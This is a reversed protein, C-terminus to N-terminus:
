RLILIRGAISTIRTGSLRALEAMAADPDDLRLGGSIRMTAADGNAVVIWGRHYRRLEDVVDGLPRGSFYLRGRTWGFAEFPEIAHVPALGAGRAASAQGAGLVARAPADATARLEVVGEEVAVQEGAAGRAVAFRTGIDRIVADGSLMRFPRADKAVTVFARGRLLRIERRDGGIDADIASGSDLTVLTGDDLRATAIEGIATAHDAPWAIQTGTLRLGIGTVAFLCLALASATTAARTRRGPRVRRAAGALASSGWLREIRAYAADHRPDAARWAEFGQPDDGAQNAVFWSLARADTPSLADGAKRGGTM